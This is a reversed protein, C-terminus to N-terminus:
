EHRGTGEREASSVVREGRVFRGITEDREITEDSRRMRIRVRRGM